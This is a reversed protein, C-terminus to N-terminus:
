ERISPRGGNQERPYTKRLRQYETWLQRIPSGRAAAKSEQIWNYFLREKIGLRVATRRISGHESELATFIRLIAFDHAAGAPCRLGSGLNQAVASKAQKPKAKM